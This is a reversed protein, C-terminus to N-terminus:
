ASSRGTSTLSNINLFKQVQLHVLGEVHHGDIERGLGRSELSLVSNFLLHLFAPLTHKTRRRAGPAGQKNIVQVHRLLFGISGLRREFEDTLPETVRSPLLELRLFLEPLSEFAHDDHTSHSRRSTTFRYNGHTNLPV